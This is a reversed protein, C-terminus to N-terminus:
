PQYFHNSKLNNNYLEEMKVTLSEIENKMEMFSRSSQSAYYSLKNCMSVLSNYRAIVCMDDEMGNVLPSRPHTKALKTWRKLICSTHIEELHRVKMVVVMHWYPIGISEFMMGSCKLTLIDSWFQVDCKFNLHRFKSLTCSLFRENSILGIVFFLEVNKMNKAFNSSPNRLTYVLLM